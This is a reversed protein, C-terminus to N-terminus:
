RKEVLEIVAFAFQETVNIFDTSVCGFITALTKVGLVWVENLIDDDEVHNDVDCGYLFLYGITSTIITHNKQLLPYNHEKFVEKLVHAICSLNEKHLQQPSSNTPSSSQLLSDRFVKLIELKTEDDTYNEAM